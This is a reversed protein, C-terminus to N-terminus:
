GSWTRSLASASEAPKGSRDRACDAQATREACPEPLGLGFARGAEKVFEGGKQYIEGAKTTAYSLRYLLRSM